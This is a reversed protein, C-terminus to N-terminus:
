ACGNFWRSRFMLDVSILGWIGEGPFSQVIAGIFVWSLGRVGNVKFFHAVEEDWLLSFLFLVM